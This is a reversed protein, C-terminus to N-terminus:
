FNFRLVYGYAGCAWGHNEDLFFVERLEKGGLQVEKTWSNGGNITKYIKTGAVCYGKLSDFFHIDNIAVDDTFRTVTEWTSGGNNTKFLDADNAVYGNDRNSFSLPSYYNTFIKISNWNLGGDVTKYLNANRTVWGEADNIFQLAVGTTNNDRFNYLSDFSVGGNTSKWIYLYSAAYCTNSSGYFCDQFAPGGVATANSYSVNQINLGNDLTYALNSNGGVFTAKSGVAGINYFNGSINSAKVWDVGANSSRYIGDTTTIYGNNQDTFFIDTVTEEVPITGLKSWGASLTDPLSPVIVPPNLTQVDNNAKKCSVAFFLIGLFLTVAKM